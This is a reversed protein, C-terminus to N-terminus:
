HVFKRKGFEWSDSVRVCCDDIDYALIIVEDHELFYRIPNEDINFFGLKLLWEETLPIPMLERFFYFPSESFYNSQNVTVGMETISKVSVIETGKHLFNGIRLERVEM